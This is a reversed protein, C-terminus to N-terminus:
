LHCDTKIFTMTNKKYNKNFQNHFKIFISQSICFFLVRSNKFFPKNNNSTSNFLNIDVECFPPTLQAM